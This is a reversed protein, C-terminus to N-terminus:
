FGSAMGPARGHAADLAARVVGAVWGPERVIQDYTFQHVEYGLLTLRSARAADATLAERSAHSAYGLAELVIGEEAYTADVRAVFAGRRCVTRQVVPLPLGAGELVALLERELWSETPGLRTREALVGEFRRVGNRGRCRREELLWWLWRDSALRRRVADEVASTLEEDSIESAPLGALGLLTRAVSTTPIPGIRVLDGDPLNTSTHVRWSSPRGGSGVSRGKAVSIDVVRRRREILDHLWGATLHSAVGGLDLCAALVDAKRGGPHGALRVTHRGVPVFLGAAIRRHRTRPTVGVGRLQDHTVIGLQHEALEAVAKETAIDM